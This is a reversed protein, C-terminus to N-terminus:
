ESYPFNISRVFAEVEANFPAGGIIVEKINGGFLRLSETRAKEKIKESIIPIHLLLKGLKSDIKPLVEKKFIKEIVLPVCSMIRPHFEAVTTMIVKPSPMRTLFYLHAGFCVGYLFDYVLGFVHGMPLMSVINDGPAIGITRNCFLVNSVLSRYPLMVGKSFGTTGSTYNIVALQEPSSEPTFHVHERLFMM